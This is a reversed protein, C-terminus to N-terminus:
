GFTIAEIHKNSVGIFGHPFKFEKKTWKDDKKFIEGMTVETLPVFNDKSKKRFLGFFMGSIDYFSNAVMKTIIHARQAQEQISQAMTSARKKEMDDGIMEMEDYFYFIESLKIQIKEYKKYITTEDIFLRADYMLIANDYCKENQNRWFVNSSNLLDTTRFSESPVDVMGSYKKGMSTMIALKRQIVAM